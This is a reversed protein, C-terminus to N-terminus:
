GNNAKPLAVRTVLRELYKNISYDKWEEISRPKLVIVQSTSLAGRLAEGASSNVPLMEFPHLSACDPTLVCTNSHFM